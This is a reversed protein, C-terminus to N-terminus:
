EYENFAVTEPPFKLKVPLEELPLPVTKEPPATSLALTSAPDLRAKTPFEIAELVPKYRGAAILTCDPRPRIVKCPLEALPVPTLVFPSSFKVTLLPFKFIVPTVFLVLEAKFMPFKIVALIAKPELTFKIALEVLLAEPTEKKFLVPILKCAPPPPLKFTVALVLLPVAIKNEPVVFKVAKLPFIDM